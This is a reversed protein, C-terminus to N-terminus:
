GLIALTEVITILNNRVMRGSATLYAKTHIGDSSLTILGKDIMRRAASYLRGRVVCDPDCRLIVELQAGSLCCLRELGLVTDDSLKSM